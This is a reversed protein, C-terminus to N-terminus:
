WMGLLKMWGGGITTWLAILAVAAILGNRWWAGLPVYGAGFLVPAPGSSYHTLTAFLSSIFGFVLASFLPPAGAAIATALFAAYMASVHATNSAFLCHSFYYVLTLVVFAVIWNMDGVLTSMRDSLWPILGLTNLFTAMMVLAAFWVLTDWAQTETKVDEWTLVGVLLLVSLGIMAVTTASMDFLPGGLTWLFLLLVITGAMIWEHRTLSGLEDLQTRAAAAAQPTEKLEPGFVRYMLLPIVVLSVLGPVSAALAWQGWSITM